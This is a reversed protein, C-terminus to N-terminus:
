IDQSEGSITRHSDVSQGTVTCQNDQSQGSITRHSDVLQGTVRCSNDRSQGSITRHKYVSQGTVTCQNDQSQGSITRHIEVLQGTVTWQNDRVHNWHLDQMSSIMWNICLLWYKAKMNIYVPNSLSVPFFTLPPQACQQLTPLHPVLREGETAGVM